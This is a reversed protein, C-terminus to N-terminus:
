NKIGFRNGFNYEHIHLSFSRFKHVCLIDCLKFHLLIYIQMCKSVQINKISSEVVLDMTINSGRAQLAFMEVTDSLFPIVSINQPHLDLIGSELKEYCLLDNLIDVAAGCSMNVDCLIDYREVDVAEKGKKMQETLLQLGLVV